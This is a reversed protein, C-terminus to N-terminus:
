KKEKKILQTRVSTKLIDTLSRERIKDLPPNSSYYINQIKKLKNSFCEIETMHPKTAAISRLSRRTKHIQKRRSLASPSRAAILKRRAKAM